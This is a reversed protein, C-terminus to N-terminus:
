DPLTVGRLQRRSTIGVKRFISRLHADITRPSLFLQAAVERSTAGTSVLRAIHVEQATLVDAGQALRKRPSEGTARLERVARAAFAWAGVNSLLDHATRLQERADQRRGERRLWEGYVLHTRGLHSVMRSRRLQHIAERYSEEAAPGASSLARSRAALGLGWPTGAAAARSRLHDLAEAAREPQGNRCAAEILESYSLTSHTLEDSEFARVGADLAAGYDGLGNHLVAMAYSTLHLDIDAGRGLVAMAERIRMVENPRGRWAAVILQAHLLPHSEGGSGVATQEVLEAAHALDGSLVHMVSQILLASPLTSLAGSERALRVHRAALGHVLEEDFLAMANRSALWSWRYIDGVNEAAPEHDRFAELAERLGPAGEGYGRTFTTAMADLLLDVPRPPVPSVPATLAAEAVERVSHDPAIGGVVIAADLADLYTERALAPDLPALTEAASLLKKPVDFDRAVHFAIQARLLEVRAHHLSDGPGAAAVALLPLATGSAGAAHKAQAADLARRARRGPEPTLKTAQELFAAAAALGGRASARDASRELDAAAEEDTGQVAQARHWARRDPDLTQDTAAALAAHARRRDPPTARRYVASRVLPHRFRVRSDIELLGSAEAPHVAEPAVGFSSTARWLLATDGTPDAAAVLLLLQTESPLSASRSRFGDEIRRPVSLVDPLEFGGALHAPRANRPLELLALPNGRAEAIIRDRVNDDLPTHVATSLLAQAETESLGALRLQPLQAVPHDISESDSDSDRLGFVLVVREAAMRRAVFALVQASAGDLWQADDVLCLLPTEDAAEAMLTLAALGVMFRDPAPGARLGFAVSLATQQPDSLASLRDLMPECLQHLGAFAFQVEAEVGVSLEVRFGSSVAVKRAHEMLATKGIGAEGRVVLVGSHAAKARALLQEVAEVETRRGLLDTPIAGM